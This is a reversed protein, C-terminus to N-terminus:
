LLTDGHEPTDRRAILTDRAGPLHETSVALTQTSVVTEMLELLHRRTTFPHYGHLRPLNHETNPKALTETSKAFQRGHKAPFQRWITQRKPTETNPLL